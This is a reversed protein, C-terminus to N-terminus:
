RVDVAAAHQYPVCALVAFATLTPDHAVAVAIVCLAFVAVHRIALVTQWTRLEHGDDRATPDWAM